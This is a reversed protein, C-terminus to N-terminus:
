AKRNLRRRLAFAGAFVGAAAVAGLPLSDGTQPMHKHTDVVPKPSDPQDDVPQPQPEPEPSPEPEPEPSPEPEPEPEPEEAELENAIEVVARGAEDISAEADGETM